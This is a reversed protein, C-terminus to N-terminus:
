FPKTNRKIFKYYIIVAVILLFIIISIGIALTKNFAVPEKRDLNMDKNEKKTAGKSKSKDEKKIKEQSKDEQNKTENEQSDKTGFDISSNKPYKIKTQKGDHTQLIVEQENSGSTTDVILPTVKFQLEKVNIIKNTNTIIDNNKTIDVKTINSTELKTEELSKSTIKKRAGCSTILIMVLILNLIKVM